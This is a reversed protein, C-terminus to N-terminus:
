RARGEGLIRAYLAEHRSVMTQVAYEAEVRKRAAEGLRARLAGDRALALMAAAFPAPDLRPATASWRDPAPLLGTVGDEVVEPFAGIRPAIVARGAAMAELLTLPLGEYRSTTVFLDFAALAAAADQFGAFVVADAVGLARARQELSARAEGEGVIAFRIEPAAALVRASAELFVDLGKQESLRSLTGVLIAGKPIGWDARMLGARARTVPSAADLRALDVGNPILTIRGEPTREGRVLHGAVAGSVAVVRHALRAALAYRRIQSPTLDPYTLHRTYLRAPVGAAAAAMMAWGDSPRNHAHVVAPRLRRLLALLGLGSRADRLGGMAIAHLPVGNEALSRRLPSDGADEGERLCLVHPAWAPSARLALTAAVTEAGGVASLGNVVQLAVRTM